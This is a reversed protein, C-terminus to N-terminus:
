DMLPADWPSWSWGRSGVGGVTCICCGDCGVCSYGGWGVWEMCMLIRTPVSPPFRFCCCGLGSDLELFGFSLFACVWCGGDVGDMPVRGRWGGVPFGLFFVKAEDMGEIVHCPLFHKAWM